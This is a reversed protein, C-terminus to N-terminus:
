GQSKIRLLVPSTIRSHTVQAYLKTYPLHELIEFEKRIRNEFLIKDPSSNMFHRDSYCVPFDRVEDPDASNTKTKKAPNSIIASVAHTSIM